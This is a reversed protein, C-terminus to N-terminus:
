TTIRRRARCRVPGPADISAGAIGRKHPPTERVILPKTPDLELLDHERVWSSSSRFRGSSRACSSRPRWTSTPSGRSSAASRRSRTARARGREPLVEAVAARRAAVHARAARGERRARARLAGRGHRRVPDRVRVEARLARAGLRFSRAAVAGSALRADLAELWRVYDEIAARAAALRQTSRRASRRRCARCRSRTSSSRASCASRAATRTSRSSRTSARRAGRHQSQRRRLLGARARPARSFIRLREDLPAFDPRAAARVARRRQLGVPEM